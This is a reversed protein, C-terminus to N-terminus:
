SEIQDLRSQIAALQAKLEAIESEQVPPDNDSSKASSPRSGPKLPEIAKDILSGLPSNKWVTEIAEQFQRQNDIAMKGLPNKSIAGEVADQFQRQNRRFNEMAAELYSPMLSQMSNGYMAILQRLFAVPLMNQGNAEEDVIIQTLVSHTIDDGTKADLVIFDIDERTMTALADLTIYSSTQTNYLRRNAYKKITVVGDGDAYKKAAM